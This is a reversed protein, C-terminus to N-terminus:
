AKHSICSYDMPRRLLAICLMGLAYVVGDESKACNLRLDGRPMTTRTGLGWCSSALKVVAIPRNPFTGVLIVSGTAFARHSGHLHDNPPCYNIVPTELQTFLILKESV